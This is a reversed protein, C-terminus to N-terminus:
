WWLWSSSERRTQRRDNRETPPTSRGRYGRRRATGTHGDVGFLPKSHWRRNALGRRGSDVSNNEPAGSRMRM